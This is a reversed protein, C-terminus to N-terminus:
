DWSIDIAQTDENYTASLNSVPELEDFKESVTNPETGKVFLETIINEKPTFESPLAPPNSGKEVAVEVVSSPREFDPTEIDKSIEVMTNKFLERPIQTTELARNNEKYGTWVGISYNTTYGVFWSNNAGPKDQLNTTGTKGAVPLGPINASQGTGETVVDKLMDTVMYATYDAMVAEPEPKLDIVSGDPFEVKVVAYPETYIGENGFASFAGALQLPFSNTSTGGIADQPVLHEDAFEIGLNEAFEKARDPGIEM